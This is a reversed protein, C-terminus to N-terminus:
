LTLLPTKLNIALRFFHLCVSISFLSINRQINGCSPIAVVCCTVNKVYTCDHGFNAVGAASKVDM